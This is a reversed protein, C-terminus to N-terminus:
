KLSEQYCGIPSGPPMRPIEPM